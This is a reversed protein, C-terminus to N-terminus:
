NAPRHWISTGNRVRSSGGSGDGHLAQERPASAWAGVAQCDVVTAAGPSSAALLTLATAAAASSSPAETCSSLPATARIPSTTVSIDYIALWGM